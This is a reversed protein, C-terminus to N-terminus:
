NMARPPWSGAITAYGRDEGLCLGVRHGLGVGTARFGGFARVITTAPSPLAGWGLPGALLRHAEDYLLERPSAAAEIHLRWVGGQEVVRLDRVRSGFAREVDADGWFRSWARTQTPGHWACRGASRSGSGWVYHASLPAGGCHSTWQSPGPRGAEGGIERWLADDLPEAAAKLEVSQGAAPWAVLPGRGVFFACHTSDCVHSAAHRPGQALFRLVAAGLALRLSRSGGPLEAAIVGNVYEREDMRATLRLTGDKHGDCALAARLTRRLARGPVQLEWLGQDLRDGAVLRQASGSGVFGRSGGVPFSALNRVSLERPALLAFLEVSVAGAEPRTESRTAGAPQPGRQALAAAAQRGTGRPLLGLTARGADDVTVILGSTALPQGDLALATGTKAWLARGAFASATGQSAASRLGALLERRLLEGSRWPERILRVYASLLAGAEIAVHGEPDVGIAREPSVEADVRFGEARLSRALVDLSVDAALSRFYANCSLATAQTLGLEGHGARYWCTTGGSCRIRPALAGPHSTAWARAVFPKQLSGVALPGLPAAADSSLRGDVLRWVILEDASLQTAALMAVVLLGSRGRPWM